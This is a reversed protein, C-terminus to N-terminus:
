AGSSRALRLIPRLRKLVAATTGERDIPDFQSYLASLKISVNVRPLVRRHDCDLMEEVPWRKAHEALGAILDLYRHQYHEAEVESLVAEGLLDITFALRQRRLRDIAEIAQPLDTAAIFRHAM